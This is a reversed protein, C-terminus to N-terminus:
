LDTCSYSESQACTVHMCDDDTSLESKKWSIALTPYMMLLYTIHLESWSIALMPYMMLLYNM